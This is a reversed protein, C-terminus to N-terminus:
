NFGFYVIAHLGHANKVLTAVILDRDVCKHRHQKNHQVGSNHISLLAKIQFTVVNEWKNMSLLEEVERNKKGRM